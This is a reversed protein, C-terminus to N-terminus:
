RSLVVSSAWLTAGIRGDGVEQKVIFEGGGLQGSLSFHVKVEPLSDGWSRMVLLGGEGGSGGCGGGAYGGRRVEWIEIDDSCYYSHHDELPISHVELGYQAALRCFEQLLLLLLLLLLWKFSTPRLFLESVILLPLCASHECTSVSVYRPDFTPYVRHEYSFLAISHDGMVAAVAQLCFITDGHQMVDPARQLFSVTWVKILPEIPYLKPLVCDSVLIVDFPPDLHEASEDWEYEKYQLDSMDIDFDRACVDINSQLLGRVSDQDTLAVSAGLIGAVLGTCGTGSGIDIVRKGKLANGSYRIEMYKALVHAAPWVVAGTGIGKMEGNDIQQMKLVKGDNLELLYTDCGRFKQRWQLCNAARQARPNKMKMRGNKFADTINISPRNM